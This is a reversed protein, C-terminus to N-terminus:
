RALTANYVALVDRVLTHGTPTDLAVTTETATLGPHTAIEPDTFLVYAIEDEDHRCRSAFGGGAPAWGRITRAWRRTLLYDRAESKTLWTDQGLQALGPGHLTVVAIATTLRVQSLQRRVLAARPVLRPAGDLPLDRTMTEAIAARASAGLYCYAYSGDISDFRGGAAAAPRPTPNMAIADREAAHIRWLRTGRRLRTIEPTGPCSSPPSTRPM